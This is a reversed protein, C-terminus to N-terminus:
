TNPVKNWVSFILSFFIKKKNPKFKYIYIYTFKSYNYSCFSKSVFIYGLHFFLKIKPLGCKAIWWNQYYNVGIMICIVQQSVGIGYMCYIGEWKPFFILLDVWKVKWTGLIVNKAMVKVGKEFEHTPMFTFACMRREM